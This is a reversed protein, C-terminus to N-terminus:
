IKISQEKQIQCYAEQDLTVSYFFDFQEFDPSVVDIKIGNTMKYIEFRLWRLNSDGRQEVYRIGQIEM